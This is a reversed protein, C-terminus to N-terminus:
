LLIINQYQVPFYPNLSLKVYELSTRFFSIHLVSRCLMVYVRLIAVVWLTPHSGLLFVTRYQQKVPILFPELSSAMSPTLVRNINELYISHFHSYHPSRKLVTGSKIM